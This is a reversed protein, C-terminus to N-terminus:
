ETLGASQSPVPITRSICGNVIWGDEMRENTIWDPIKGEYDENHESARSTIHQQKSHQTSICLIWVWFDILSLSICVRLELRLWVCACFALFLPQKAAAVDFWSDSILFFMSFYGVLLELGM